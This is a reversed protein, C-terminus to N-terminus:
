EFFEIAGEVEYGFRLSGDPYCVAFRGELDPANSFHDGVLVGSEFKPAMRIALRGLEEDSVNLGSYANVITKFPGDDHMVWIGVAGEIQAHDWYADSDFVNSQPVGLSESLVARVDDVSLFREISFQFSDM